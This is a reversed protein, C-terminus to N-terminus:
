DLSHAKDEITKMATGQLLILQEQEEKVSLYIWVCLKDVRKLCQPM